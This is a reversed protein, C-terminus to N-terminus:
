KYGLILNFKRSGEEFYQFVKIKRPKLIQTENESDYFRRIVHINKCWTGM